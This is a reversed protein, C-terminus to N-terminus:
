PTTLIVIPHIVSPKAEALLFPWVTRRPEGVFTNRDTPLTSASKCVLGVMWPCLVQAENVIRETRLASVEV